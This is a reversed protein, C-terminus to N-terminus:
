AKSDQLPSIILPSASGATLSLSPLVTVLRTLRLERDGLALSSGDSISSVVARWAIHM